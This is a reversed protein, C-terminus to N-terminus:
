YVVISRWLEGAEGSKELARCVDSVAAIVDGFPWRAMLECTFTAMEHDTVPWRTCIVASAGARRFSTAFSQEVGLDGSRQATACGSLLVVPHSPLAFTEIEDPTLAGDAFLLEPMGDTRAAHVGLHLLGCDPLAALAAKKANPGRLSMACQTPCVEAAAGPLDGFPDAISVVDRSTPALVRHRTGPPVCRVALPVHPNALVPLDHPGDTSGFLVTGGQPNGLLSLVADQSGEAHEMLRGSERARAGLAAVARGGLPVYRLVGPAPEVIWSGTADSLIGILGVRDDSAADAELFALRALSWALRREGWAVLVGVAVSVARLQWVTPADSAAGLVARFRAVLESSADADRRAGAVDARALADWMAGEATQTPAADALLEEARGRMGVRCAAIAAKRQLLSQQREPLRAFAAHGSCVLVEAWREGDFALTMRGVLLQADDAESWRGAEELWGAAEAARGAARCRQVMARAVKGAHDRDLPVDHTIEALVRWADDRYGLDDLLIALGLSARVRGAVDERERALHLAKRYQTLADRPHDEATAAAGARMWARIDEALEPLSAGVVNLHQPEMPPRVVLSRVALGTTPAEAILASVAADGHDEMWLQVAELDLRDASGIAVLTAEAAVPATHTLTVGLSRATKESLLRPGASASWSLLALCRADPDFARVANGEMVLELSHGQHDRYRGREDRPQAPAISALTPIAVIRRPALFVSMPPMPPAPGRRLAHASAAVVVDGMALTRCRTCRRFHEQARRPWRSRSAVDLAGDLLGAAVLDEHSLHKTM